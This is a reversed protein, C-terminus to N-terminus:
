GRPRAFGGGLVGGYRNRLITWLSIQDSEVIGCSQAEIHWFSAQERSVDPVFPLLNDRVYACFAPFSNISNNQTHRVLYCLSLAAFENTTLLPAKTAADNLTIAIRSRETELSRRAIIDVLTDRIAQDGSRAYATQADNIMYQFDPDRFAEANARGPQAFNKIVEEQFSRLRNEVVQMADAQYISLQKAMGMMIQAMQDASMAGHVIVDRGAQVAASGQAVRQDQRTM